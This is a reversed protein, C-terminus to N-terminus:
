EVCLRNRGGRKASLLQMSAREVMVAPETDLAGREVAGVSVTVQLPKGSTSRYPYDAIAERVRELVGKSQEATTDTMVLCIEEGGYRAVWDTARIHDRMVDAVKRLVVDGTPWGYQKNVEGFYDVDMLAVTLPRSSNVASEFDRAFRRDFYGRTYLKTLADVDAEHRLSNLLRQGRHTILNAVRESVVRTLNEFALAEIGQGSASAQRVLADWGVVVNRGAAKAGYLAEDAQRILEKPDGPFAATAMGVSITLKLGGAFTHEGVTRRVLEAIGHATTEDEPILIGFEEGGFRAIFVPKTCVARLVEAVDRLVQDGAVHGYKDNIAKFHDVDALLLSLVTDSGALVGLQDNLQKRTALQTLPDRVETQRTYIHRLRRLVQERMLTRLCVDDQPRLWGLIETTDDDTASLVLTPKEVYTYIDRLEDISAFANADLVIVDAMANVLAEVSGNEIAFEAASESAAALDSDLCLYIRIPSNTLSM